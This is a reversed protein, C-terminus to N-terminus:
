SPSQQHVAGAAWMRGASPPLPALLNVVSRTATPIAGSRLGWYIGVEPWLKASWRCPGENFGSMQSAISIYVPRFFAMASTALYAPEDSRKHVIHASRQGRLPASRPHVRCSRIPMECGHPAVLSRWRVLGNPWAPFRSPRLRVDLVM